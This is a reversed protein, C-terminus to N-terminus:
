RFMRAWGPEIFELDLEIKVVDGLAAGLAGFGLGFDSRRDEGPAEIGVHRTSDFFDEVGGIVVALTLPGTVDGITLEGTDGRSPPAARATGGVTWATSSCSSGAGASTTL